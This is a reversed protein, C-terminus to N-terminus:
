TVAINRHCFSKLKKYVLKQFVLPYCINKKRSKNNNNLFHLIQIDERLKKFKKAAGEAHLLALVLSRVQTVAADPPM